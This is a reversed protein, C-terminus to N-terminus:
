EEKGLKYNHLKMDHGAIITDIALCYEIAFKLMNFTLNWRMSVDWPMMRDNLELEELIKTWQPLILTSSNKIAFATKCLQSAHPSDVIWLIFNQV